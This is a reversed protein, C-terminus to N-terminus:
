KLLDTIETLRAEFKPRLEDLAAQLKASVHPRFVEVADLADRQAAAELLLYRRALDDGEADNLWAANTAAEREALNRKLSVLDFGTGEMKAIIVTGTRGDGGVAASPAPTTPVPQVPVASGPVAVDVTTTPSPAAVAPAASNSKATASAATPKVLLKETVNEATEQLDGFPGLVKVVDAHEDRLKGALSKADGDPLREVVAAALKRSGDQEAILWSALQYDATLRLRAKAEAAAAEPAPAPQSAQAFHSHEPLGLLATLLAIAVYRM